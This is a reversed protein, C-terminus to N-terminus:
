KTADILAKIEQAVPYTMVDFKSYDIKDRFSKKDSNIFTLKGELQKRAAGDNELTLKRSFKRAEAAADLLIKQVDPTQRAYIKESMSITTPAVMHDTMNIYKTVEFMAMSNITEPTNEIADVVGTDLASYAEAMAVPTPAAGLLKFANVYLPSEPVRIKMGAIDAATNLPKKSTFIQRFAQVYHTLVKAHAKQLVIEHAKQGAPGALVKDCHDYDNYQFPLIVAGIEPVVVLYAEYSVVAMDLTGSMLAEQNERETGLTSSPYIQIDIKGGSKEKAGDAFKVMATQFSHNPPFVHALQFTLTDGGTKEASDQSGGAFVSVAGSTLFLCLMLSIIKKM